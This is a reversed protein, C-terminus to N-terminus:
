YVSVTIVKFYVCAGKLEFYIQHRRKTVNYEVGKCMYVGYCLKIDMM